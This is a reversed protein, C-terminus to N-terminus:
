YTTVELKFINKTHIQFKLTYYKIHVVVNEFCIFWNGEITYNIAIYKNLDNILVNIKDM